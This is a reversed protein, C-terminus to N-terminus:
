QHEVSLCIDSAFSSLLKCVSTKRFLVHVYIGSQLLLVVVPTGPHSLQVGYRAGCEAPPRSLIREREAM